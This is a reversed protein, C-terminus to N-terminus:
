SGSMPRCGVGPKPGPPARRKSGRRPRDPKGRCRKRHRRSAKPIASLCRATRQRPSRSWAGSNAWIPSRCNIRCAWRTSCASVNLRGSSVGLACGVSCLSINPATTLPAPDVQRVIELTLSPLWSPPRRVGPQDTLELMFEAGSCSGVEADLWEVDFKRLILANRLPPWWPGREAEIVDLRGGIAEDYERLADEAKRLSGALADIEDETLPRLKEPDPQPVTFLSEALGLHYRKM